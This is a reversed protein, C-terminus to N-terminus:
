RRENNTQSVDGHQPGQDTSHPPPPWAQPQPYAPAVPQPMTVRSFDGRKAALIADSFAQAHQANQFACRPVFIGGTATWVYVDGDHCRAEKIANWPVPTTKDPTIDLVGEPIIITSCVRRGGATRQQIMIWMIAVHVLVMIAVALIEIAIQGIAGTKANLGFFLGLILPPILLTMLQSPRAILSYIGCRRQDAGNSSDYTVQM